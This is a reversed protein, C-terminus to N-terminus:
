CDGKIVILCGDPLVRGTSRTDSPWLRIAVCDYHTHRQFVLMVRVYFLYLYLYSVQYLAM